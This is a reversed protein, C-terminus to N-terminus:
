RGCGIGNDVVDVGGLLLQPTTGALDTVKLEHLGNTGDSRAWTSVVRGDPLVCPGTDAGYKFVGTPLVEGNLLRASNPTVQWVQATDNLLAECVLSGDDEFDAHALYTEETVPKGLDSPKLATLGSGDLGVQCLTTGGASNPAPGCDFV